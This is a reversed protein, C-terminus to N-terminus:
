SHSLKKFVSNAFACMKLIIMHCSNIDYLGANLTYINESSQTCDHVYM